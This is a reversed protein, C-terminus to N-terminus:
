LQVDFWGRRSEAEDGFVAFTDFAGDARRQSRMRVRVRTFEEDIELLSYLRPTGDPLGEHRSGFSGAGLVQLRRGQDLFPVAQAAEEHIDGHLCLRFGAKVLHEIQEQNAIQRNAWVAHHWVVIRLAAKHKRSEMLAKNLAEGHITARDPFAKDIEWATNLTLFEIGTEPYWTIVGQEEHRLPYERQLLNHHFKRFREFRKPYLDNNRVM